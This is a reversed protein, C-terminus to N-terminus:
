LEYIKFINQEATSATKIIKSASNRHSEQTDYEFIYVKLM